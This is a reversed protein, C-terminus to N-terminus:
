CKRRYRFGEKCRKIQLFDQLLSKGEWCGTLSLKFAAPQTIDGITVRYIVTSIDNEGMFTPEGPSQQKFLFSLFSKNQCKQFYVYQSNKESRMGRVTNM